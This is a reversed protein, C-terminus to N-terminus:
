IVLFFGRTVLSYISLLLGVKLDDLLALSSTSLDAEPSSYLNNENEDDIITLSKNSEDGM